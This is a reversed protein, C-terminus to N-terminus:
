IIYNVAFSIVIISCIVCWEVGNLLGYWIKFLIPVSFINDNQEILAVTSFSYERVLDNDYNELTLMKEIFQEQESNLEIKKYNAYKRIRKTHWRILQEKNKIKHLVRTLHKTHAGNCDPAAILDWILVYIENNIKGKIRKDLYRNLLKM